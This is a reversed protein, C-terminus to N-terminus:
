KNTFPTRFSITHSKIAKRNLFLHQLMISKGTGSPGTLYLITDPMKVYQDILYKYKAIDETIIM